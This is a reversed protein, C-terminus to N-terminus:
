LMEAAAKDLWWILKGKGPAVKMAPYDDAESEKKIIDGVKQSKNSGTVLFVVEKANNIVRGSLSVRQQGSDPHRAVVCLQQAEWLDIQNPFISATHGDTGLGLMILDLCPTGDQIPAEKELLEAYRRAEEEPIKEGAIRYIQVEPISVKSLFTDWAMKYNSEAHDPPVCREDGWYVHVKSWNIRKSYSAALVEFVIKPTSGGSLALHFAESAAIANELYNAFERAAEEPKSFINIQM